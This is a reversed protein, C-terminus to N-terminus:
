ASRGSRYGGFLVQWRRKWSHISDPTKALINVASAWSKFSRPPMSRLSPKISPVKAGAFFPAITHAFGFPAFSGLNHAKCVRETKRDGNVCGTSARMFYGKNVISKIGAKKLIYWLLDNTVSSIVTVFKILSQGL